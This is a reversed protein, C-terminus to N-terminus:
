IHRSAVVLAEYLPYRDTVRGEVTVISYLNRRHQAHDAVRVVDAPMIKREHGDRIIGYFILTQKHPAQEVITMWKKLEVFDREATTDYCVVTIDAYQVDAILLSSFCTKGSVDWLRMRCQRGDQLFAWTRMEIGMTPGIDCSPTGTLSTLLQTKGIGPAGVFCVTLPM